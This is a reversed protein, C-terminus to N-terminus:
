WGTIDSFWPLFLWVICFSCLINFELDKPIQFNSHFKFESNQAHEQINRYVKATCEILTLTFQRCWPSATGVWHILFWSQVWVERTKTGATSEVLQAVKFLIRYDRFRLKERKLIPISSTWEPSFGFIYHKVCIFHETYHRAWLLSETFTM